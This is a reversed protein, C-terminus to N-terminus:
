ASRPLARRLCQPDAAHAPYSALNDEKLEVLMDEPTFFDADNDEIRKVGAIHGIL